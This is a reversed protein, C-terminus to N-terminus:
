ASGESSRSEVLIESVDGSYKGQRRGEFYAYAHGMSGTGNLADVGRGLGLRYINPEYDPGLFFQLKSQVYGKCWEVLVIHIPREPRHAATPREIISGSEERLFAGM